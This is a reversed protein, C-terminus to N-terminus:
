NGSGPCTNALMTQYEQVFRLYELAAQRTADPNAESSGGVYDVITQVSDAVGNLAAAMDDEETLQTVRKAESILNDAATAAAEDFTQSQSLNFATIASSVSEAETCFDTPSATPESNPSADSSCAVAVLVTLACAVVGLLRSRM